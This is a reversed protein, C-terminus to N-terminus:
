ALLYRIHQLQLQQLPGDVIHTRLVIVLYEQGEGTLKPLFAETRLTQLASQQRLGPFCRSPRIILSEPFCPQVLPQVPREITRLKNVKM